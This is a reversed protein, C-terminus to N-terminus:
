RFPLPSGSVMGLRGGGGGCGLNLTCCGVSFLCVDGDEDDSLLLSLLLSSPLM